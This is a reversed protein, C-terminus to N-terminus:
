RRRSRAEQGIHLHVHRCQQKPSETDGYLRNLFMAKTLTDGKRRALLELMQNATLRVPIGNVAQKTSVLGGRVAAVAMAKRRIVWRNMNALRLESLSLPGGGTKLEPNAQFDLLHKHWHV